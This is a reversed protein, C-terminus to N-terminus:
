IQVIFEFWYNTCFPDKGQTAILLVSLVNNLIFLEIVDFTFAIFDMILVVGIAFTHQLQVSFFHKSM